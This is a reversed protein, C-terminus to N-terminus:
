LLLEEPFIGMADKINVQLVPLRFHLDVEWNITVSKSAAVFGDLSLQCTTFPDAVQEVLLAVDCFVAPTTYYIINVLLTYLLLM